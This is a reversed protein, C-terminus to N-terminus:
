IVAPVEQADQKKGLFLNNGGPLDQVQAYGLLQVTFCRYVSLTRNGIATNGDGCNTSLLRMVWLPIVLVMM